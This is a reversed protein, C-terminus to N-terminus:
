RSPNTKKMRAMGFLWGLGFYLLSGCTLVYIEAWLPHNEDLIFYIAGFFSLFVVPLDFIIIIVMIVKSWQPLDYTIRFLFFFTWFHVMFFILGIKAPHM